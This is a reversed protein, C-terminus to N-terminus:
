EVAEALVQDCADSVAQLTGITPNTIEGRAFQSLWSRSVPENRGAATLELLRTWHGKCRNVKDRTAVVSPHDM